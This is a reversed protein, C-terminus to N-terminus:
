RLVCLKRSVNIVRNQPECTKRCKVKAIKHFTQIKLGKLRASKLSVIKKKPFKINFTWLKLHNRLKANRTKVACFKVRSRRACM